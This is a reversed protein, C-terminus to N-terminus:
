KKHNVHVLGHRVAFTAAELRSHVQLKTLISQVHTRVTNPSVGLSKAISESGAGEALLALVELERPSLQEALFAAHRQEDTRPGNTGSPLRHQVVQEGRMVAEIQGMFQSLPMDKTLYGSFGARAADDVAKSDNVASIVLVKTDPNHELIRKGVVIGNGDPLRVDLLVVDPREDKSARVAQEGDVAVGVVDVGRDELASRIVDAFLRHDDM